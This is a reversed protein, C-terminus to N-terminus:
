NRKQWAWKIGKNRQLGIVAKMRSIFRLGSITKKKWAASIGNKRRLRVLGFSSNHLPPHCQEAHLGFQLELRLKLHRSQFPDSLVVDKTNNRLSLLHLLQLEYTKHFTIRPQYSRAEPLNHKLIFLDPGQVDQEVHTAASRLEM